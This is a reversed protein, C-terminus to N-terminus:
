KGKFGIYYFSFGKDPDSKINEEDYAIQIFNQGPHIWGPQIDVVQTEVQGGKKNVPLYVASENNFIMMAEKNTDIGSTRVIMQIGNPSQFLEPPFNLTKENSIIKDSAKGLQLVMNQQQPKPRSNDWGFLMVSGDQSAEPYFFMNQHVYQRAREDVFVNDIYYDALLWGRPNSEVTRKLDEFTAASNGVGVVPNNIYSKKEVNFESQRFWLVNDAKLYYEAASTVTSMLVDTPQRKANLFDCPQKWNTFNYASVNINAVHGELQQALVIKQLDGWRVTALIFAFPMCLAAYRTNNSASQLWNKSMYQWLWGFFVASSILFYPVAFIFYRPLAPERYIFSILIFPVLFSALLWMASRKNMWFAVIFGAMAPFYLLTPAYRVVGHYVGFATFPQQNWLVSLRSSEPLVWSVIQPRLVWSLPTRLLDNLGPIVTLLLLPLALCGVWFYKNAFRDPEGKAIKAVAMGSIYVAASIAFFFTLQHSLFSAILVVPLLLLYKPSLGHRDWFTDGNAKKEAEFGMFFVWGLLLFFFVFISYNRAIRSWFVLYLSITGSFAAILGVYRNFLRTGMQYMLYVTGLGFLVSPFRAIWANDGFIKFFPLLTVTLLIGNNDDTLLPGSGEVVGKARLVHVFEDIWLSLADLHLIRLIFGLVVIGILAKTAYRNALDSWDPMPIIEKKQAISPQAKKPAPTSPNTSRKKSM